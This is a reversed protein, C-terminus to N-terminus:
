CKWRSKLHTRCQGKLFIFHFLTKEAWPSQKEGKGLKIERIKGSYQTKPIEIAM